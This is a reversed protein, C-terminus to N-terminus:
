AAERSAKLLSMQAHERVSQRSSYPKHIRKAGSLVQEALEEFRVDKLARKLMDPANIVGRNRRSKVAVACQSVDRVLEEMYAVLIERSLDCSKGGVYGSEAFSALRGHAAHFFRKLSDEDSVPLCAAEIADLRERIRERTSLGFYLEPQDAMEVTLQEIPAFVLKRWDAANTNMDHAVASEFKSATRRLDDESQAEKFSSVASGWHPRRLTREYTEEFGM